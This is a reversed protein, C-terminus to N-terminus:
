FNMARPQTQVRSGHIWHCARYGNCWRSRRMSNLNAGLSPLQICFFVMVVIYGNILMHSIDFHPTSLLRWM